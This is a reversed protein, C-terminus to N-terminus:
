EEAKVLKFGLRAAQSKMNKVIRDKYKELYFDQGPDRYPEQKKLMWYIIRAMKHAAALNAKPSGHKARMRRYFAGLLSSRSRDLSRAAVRM